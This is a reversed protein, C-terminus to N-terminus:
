VIKQQISEVIENIEPQPNEASLKKFLRSTASLSLTLRASDRKVSELAGSLEQSKKEDLSIKIKELLAELKQVNEALSM